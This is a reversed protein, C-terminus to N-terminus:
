EYLNRCCQKLQHMNKMFHPGHYKTPLSDTNPLFYINGCVECLRDGAERGHENWSTCKPCKALVGWRFKEVKKAQIQQEM